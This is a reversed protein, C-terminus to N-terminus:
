LFVFKTYAIINLSLMSISTPIFKMCILILLCLCLFLPPLLLSHSKATHGPLMKYFTVKPHLHFYLHTSTCTLATLSPATGSPPGLSSHAPLHSSDCSVMCHQVSTSPPLQHKIKTGSHPAAAGHLVGKSLRVQSRQPSM